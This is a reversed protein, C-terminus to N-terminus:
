ECDNGDLPVYTIAIRAIVAIKAIVRLRRITALISDVGTVHSLPVNMSDNRLM